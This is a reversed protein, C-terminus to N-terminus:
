TDDSDRLVIKSAIYLAVASPVNVADDAIVTSLAVIIKPLQLYLVSNIM